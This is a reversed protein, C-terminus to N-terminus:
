VESPIIDDLYEKRLRTVIYIQGKGTVLTKYSLRREGHAPYTGERVEFYRREIYEQYPINNAM